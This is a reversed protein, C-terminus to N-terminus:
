FPVDADDGAPVYPEAPRVKRPMVYVAADDDVNDYRYEVIAAAKERTDVVHALVTEMGAIADTHPCYRPVELVVCFKGAAVHRDIEPQDSRIPNAACFADFAAQSENRYNYESFMADAYERQAEYSFFM